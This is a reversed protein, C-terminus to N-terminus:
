DRQSHKAIVQQKKEAKEQVGRGHPYVPSGSHWYAM